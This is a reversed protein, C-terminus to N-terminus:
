GEDALTMQQGRNLKLTSFMGEASMKTKTGRPFGNLNIDLTASGEVKGMVRDRMAGDELLSQRDGHEHGPIPVGRRFLGTRPEAPGGEGSDTIKSRQEDRM